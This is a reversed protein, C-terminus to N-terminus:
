HYQHFFLYNHDKDNQFLLNHRIIRLNLNSDFKVMVLESIFEAGKLRLHNWSLDLMKLNENQALADRLWRGGEQELANHSLKLNRLSFNKQIFIYICDWKFM